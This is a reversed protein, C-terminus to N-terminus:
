AGLSFAKKSEQVKSGKVPLLFWFKSGRNEESSFSIMGGSAEIILKAIYLGLGSGEAQKKIASDARFFRQFIREKDKEGIGMGNDSVDVRYYADGDKTLTIDVRAQSIQQHAYKIGNTILNVAVQRVLVPDINIEPFSREPLHLTVLCNNEAATKAYEKVAGQLLEAIDTPQPNIAIHGSELRSVNLLDNVLRIMRGTSLVAQAVNGKQAESLQGIEESQLDELYWRIATLPTRLQHSAVSVFESKMRDVEREHTVDRFVIVAGVVRGNSDLVPGSSDAVSIFSGDAHILSVGEPMVALSGALAKEIFSYEPTREVGRVFCLVDKYPKGLVESASHGSIHEAARNFLIVNGMMDVAVVGDGIGLLIADSKAKAEELQSQASHIRDIMHNFSTGLMGVEDSSAFMEEPLRTHENGSVMQEITSTMRNLRRTSLRVTIWLTPALLAHMAVGALSLIYIIRKELEYALSQPQVNILTFVGPEDKYQYYGVIVKGDDTSVEITGGDTGTALSHVKQMIEDFAIAEGQMGSEQRTDILPSGYRDLVVTYQDDEQLNMLYLSLDGIDLVASVQGIEQTDAGYVPVSMVMVPRGSLLSTFVGSVYAGEDHGYGNCYASQFFNGILQRSYNADAAIVTCNTGQLAINEVFKVLRISDDFKSSVAAVDGDTKGSLTSVISPDVALTDLTLRARNMQFRVLQYNFNLTQRTQVALNASLINRVILVTVLITSSLVSVVCLLAVLVISLAM